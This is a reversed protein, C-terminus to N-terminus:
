VRMDVGCESRLNFYQHKPKFFNDLRENGSVILLASIDMEENICKKM